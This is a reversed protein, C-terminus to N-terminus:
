TKKIYAITSVFVAGLAFSIADSVLNVIIDKVAEM